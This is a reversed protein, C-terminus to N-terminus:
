RAPRRCGSGRRGAAECRRGARVPARAGRSSRRGPGPGEREWPPRSAPPRACRCGCWEGGRECEGASLDRRAGPGRGEGAGRAATHASPREGGAPEAPPPRHRASSQGGRGARESPLGRTGGPRHARAAKRGATGCPPSHPRCGAPARSGKKACSRHESLSWFLRM